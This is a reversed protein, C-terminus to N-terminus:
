RMTLNKALEFIRATSIQSISKSKSTRESVKDNCRDTFANFQRVLRPIVFEHNSNIPFINKKGRQCIKAMHNRKTRETHARDVM